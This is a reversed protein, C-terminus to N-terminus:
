RKDADLRRHHRGIGRLGETTLSKGASHHRSNQVPFPKNEHDLTPLSGEALSELSWALVKYMGRVMSQDIYSKDHYLSLLLRGNLQKHLPMWSIINFGGCGDGHFRLPLCESAHNSVVQRHPHNVLWDADRHLHGFECLSPAGDLYKLAQREPLM